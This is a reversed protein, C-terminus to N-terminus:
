GTTASHPVVVATFLHSDTAAWKGTFSRLWTIDTRLGRGRLEGVFTLDRANLYVSCEDFGLWTKTLPFWAKYISEKASFLLTLWPLAPYAAALTSAAKLEDPSAILDSVGDPLPRRLEADIGISVLDGSRALAAARYGACHTM